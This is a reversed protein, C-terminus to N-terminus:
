QNICLLESEIEEDDEEENDELDQPDINKLIDSLNYVFEMDDEGSPIKEESSNELLDLQNKMLNPHHPNDTKFVSYNPNKSHNNLIKASKEKLYPHVIHFLCGPAIYDLVLILTDPTEYYRKLKVMYNVNIPLVSLKMQQNNSNNITKQVVKIVVKNDNEKTDTALIVKRGLIRQMKYRKLDHIDSFYDLHQFGKNHTLKNVEVMKSLNEAKDIYGM